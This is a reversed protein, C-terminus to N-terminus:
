RGLIKLDNEKITRNKIRLKNSRPFEHKLILNLISSLSKLDVELTRNDYGVEKVMFKENFKSIEIWRDNKHNEIRIVYGEKLNEINDLIWNYANRANILTM